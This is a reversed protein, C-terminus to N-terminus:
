KKRDLFYSQGKLAADMNKYYAAVTSRSKRSTKIKNRTQNFHKTIAKKNEQELTEIEMTLDTIQEVYKKLLRLPEKYQDMKEKIQHSARNYIMEFGEDLENIQTIAKEKVNLLPQFKELDLQDEALLESQKQTTEYIIHFLKIKKEITQILIDLYTQTHDMNIM